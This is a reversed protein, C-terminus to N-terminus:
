RYEDVSVGLSCLYDDRGLLYDTPVNLVDAIKVVFGFSPERVGQEYKQYSVLTCPISDAMFQQTFKRKMRLKRIRKNFM